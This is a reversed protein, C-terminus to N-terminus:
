SPARHTNCHCGVLAGAHGVGHDLLQAPATVLRDHV